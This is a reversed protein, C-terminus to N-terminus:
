RGPDGHLAKKFFEGGGTLEYDEWSKLMRPHWEPDFVWCLWSIGKGELYRIISPGYHDDGIDEGEEIQLGFETAV